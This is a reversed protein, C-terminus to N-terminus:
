DFKNALEKERDIAQQMSCLLSLSKETWNANKTGGRHCQVANKYM